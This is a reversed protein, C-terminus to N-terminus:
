SPALAVGRPYSCQGRGRESGPARVDSRPRPLAARVVPRQATVIRLANDPLGRRPDHFRWRNGLKADTASARFTSHLAKSQFTTAPAHSGRNGPGDEGGKNQLLQAIYNM